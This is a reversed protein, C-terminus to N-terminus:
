RLHSQLSPLSSWASYPHSVGRPGFQGYNLGNVILPFPYNAIGARGGALDLMNNSASSIGNLMSRQFEFQSEFLGPILSVPLSNPMSKLDVVKPPPSPIKDFIDNTSKEERRACKSTEEIPSTHTRNSTGIISEISFVAPRKLSNPTSAALPATGELDESVVRSHEARPSLSDDSPKIEDDQFESSNNTENTLSLQDASKYNIDLDCSSSTEAGDSRDSLNDGLRCGVGKVRRKRRRYNGNEFMEECNPDLTWYNGKGPKGKERPVKVFCDNLSLNHRISNQWGQKNDHYYPFREMIFQYIGNLTVKRDPAAKVAMAILAIYSYPPKQPQERRQLDEIMKMAYARNIDLTPNYYLGYPYAPAGFAPYLSQM